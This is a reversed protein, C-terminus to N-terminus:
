VKLIQKCLAIEDPDGTHKGPSDSLKIAPEWVDNLKVANIKIVMNLPTVDTDNTFNTGIGYATKIHKNVEKEIHVAKELNLSDSFIILKSKPDINLHEYHNIIKNAFVLPDGSDQRVGDFLKSYKMAFEKLFVDTTFTDPLATGLSGQFVEVWKELVMTTAMKYGYLRSLVMYVEHAQTGTPTLNYKKAFHVNSTGVLGHKLINLTKDHVDYSHRRRTGFDAVSLHNDHIIRLKEINQKELEYLPSLEGNSMESIIAMIPVEWLITRYWPGRICIEFQHQKGPEYIVEVESSDYAYGKLFDRYVPTFYYCKKKLFTAESDTLRLSGMANINSILKTAFSDSFEVPTRLIWKYEVELNPFQQCVFMQQTFKYIDNDLISNILM